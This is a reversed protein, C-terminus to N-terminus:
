VKMLENIFTYRYKPSVDLATNPLKTVTEQQTCLPKWYTGM